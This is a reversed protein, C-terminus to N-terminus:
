KAGGTLANEIDAILADTEALALRISARMGCASALAKILVQEATIPATSNPHSKQNTKKSFGQEVLAKENPPSKM